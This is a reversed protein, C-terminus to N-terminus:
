KQHTYTNLLKKLTQTDCRSDTLFTIINRIKTYEVFNNKTLLKISPLNDDQVMACIQHYSHKKCAKLFIPLERSMIGQNRYEPSVEYQIYPFRDMNPYTLLRIDGIDKDNQRITKQMLIM